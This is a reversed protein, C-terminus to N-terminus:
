SMRSKWEATSSWPEKGSGTSADATSAQTSDAKDPVPPRPRHSKVRRCTGVHEQHEPDHRPFLRDFVADMQVHARGTAILGLFHVTDQAPSGAPDVDALAVRRPDHQGIGLAVLKTDQVPPDIGLEARLRVDQDDQGAKRYPVLEHHAPATGGRRGAGWVETLWRTYMVKRGDADM